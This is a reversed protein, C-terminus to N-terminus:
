FIFSCQSQWAITMSMNMTLQNKSMKINYNTFYESIQTRNIANIIILSSLEYLLSISHFIFSYILDFARVKIFSTDM